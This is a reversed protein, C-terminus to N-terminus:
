YYRFMCIAFPVGPTLRYGSGVFIANDLLARTDSDQSANCLGTNGQSM